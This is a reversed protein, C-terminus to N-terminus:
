GEAKERRLEARREALIEARREDTPLSKGERRRYRMRALEQTIRELEQTRIRDRDRGFAGPRWGIM